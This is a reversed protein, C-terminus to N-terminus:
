RILRPLTTTSDSLLPSSLSIVRCSISVRLIVLILDLIWRHNCLKLRWEAPFSPSFDILRHLSPSKKHQNLTISGFSTQDAKPLRNEPPPGESSQQEILVPNPAPPIVLSTDVVLHSFLKNITKMSEFSGHEM